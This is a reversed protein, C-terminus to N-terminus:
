PKIGAATCDKAYSGACLTKSPVFNDKVVTSKMNKTTVWEPVDLVSPVAVHETTDMVSGNVLTKPPTAHARLYLALSVAAQAELYIPKYVTGCQYGALVNDLGTLSADQGTTPFTKPAIHLAQLHAIIPAGTEDNPIVAANITPHATYAAEFETLALTPTWTGATRASLTYKKSKFYPALVSTYGQAFLTANNDTAAGHMIMVHPKSVHWAAVCSTFGQGILKGVQVNNFSVYYERSGGLVLRDYDVVDVGHAKAYSEIKAGVGSDLPDMLLVSAGSTIDTEADTLETTDSGQANQVVIDSSPLGAAQMAKTLDPADFEVYRTSTTTDPLIAAVKGKGEKVLPKLTKMVAFTSKFQTVSITPAKSAAGAGVPLAMAAATTLAAVAIGAKFIPQKMM